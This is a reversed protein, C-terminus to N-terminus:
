QQGIRFVDSLVVVSYRLPLSEFDDSSYTQSHANKWEPLIILLTNIVHVCLSLQIPCCVRSHVPCREEEHYSEDAARDM